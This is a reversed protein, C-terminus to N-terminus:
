PMIDKVNMGLSDAIDKFQDIKAQRKGESIQIALKRGQHYRWKKVIYRYISPVEHIAIIAYISLLIPRTFWDSGHVICVFITFLIMLFYLCEAALKLKSKM